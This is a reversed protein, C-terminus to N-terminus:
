VSDLSILLDNLQDLAQEDAFDFRGTKLSKITKRLMDRNEEEEAAELLKRQMYAGALFDLAPGHAEIMSGPNTKFFVWNYQKVIKEIAKPSPMPGTLGKDILSLLAQLSKRRNGPYKPLYYDAEKPRDSNVRSDFDLIFPIDRFRLYGLLDRADVFSLTLDVGSCCAGTSGGQSLRIFYRGKGIHSCSDATGKRLWRKKLKDYSM